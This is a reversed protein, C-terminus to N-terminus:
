KKENVVAVIHDRIPQLRELSYGQNTIYLQVSRIGQYQRSIPNWGVELRNEKKEIQESYENYLEHNITVGINSPPIRVYNDFLDILDYDYQVYNEIFQNIVHINRLVEVDYCGHFHAVSHPNNKNKRYIIICSLTSIYQLYYIGENDARIKAQLIKGGNLQYQFYKKLYSHTEGSVNFKKNCPFNILINNDNAKMHEYPVFEKPPQSQPNIEIRFKDYVDHIEVHARTVNNLTDNAGFISNVTSASLLPFCFSRNDDNNVIARIMTTQTTVASTANHQLRRSPYLNNGSFLPQFILNPLPLQAMQTIIISLVLFQFLFSFKFSVIEFL